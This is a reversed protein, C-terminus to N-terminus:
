QCPRVRGRGGGEAGPGGCVCVCALGTGIEGWCCYTSRTEAWSCSRNSARSRAKFGPASTMGAVCPRTARSRTTQVPRKLKSPVARLAPQSLTPDPFTQFPIHSADSM